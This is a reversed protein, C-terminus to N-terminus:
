SEQPAYETEAEITYPGWLSHEVNWGVANGDRDLITITVTYGDPCDFSAITQLVVNNNYDQSHFIIDTGSKSFSAWDDMSQLEDINVTWTGVGAGTRTFLATCYGVESYFLNITFALGSSTVTMSNKTRYIAGQKCATGSILTWNAVTSAHVDSGLVAFGYVTTGSLVSVSKSGSTATSSTSLYYNQLGIGNSTATITYTPKATANITGFDHAKTVYVSGVRYVNGNGVYSWSALPTYAATNVHAFAYVTTGAYFPASSPSTTGGTDNPNASLYVKTIGTGATVTVAYSALTANITGFSHGSATVTGSGVRYTLSDGSGVAVWTSPITISALLDRKLAVFGYVTSGYPFKTGSASGSAATSSNSLYVSSIGAGATITVAYGNGVVTPTWSYNNSITGSVSLSTQTEAYGSFHYYTAATASGALTDGYYVTETGTGDILPSQPNSLAANQYPSSERWIKISSVNANKTISCTYRKVYSATCTNEGPLATTTTITSNSTNFAYAADATWSITSVARKWGTSATTSCHTGTLKTVNVYDASYSVAAGAELMLTQHTTTGSSNFACNTNATVQYAQQKNYYKDADNVTCSCRTLSVSAPKVCFPEASYSLSSSSVTATTNTQTAGAAFSYNTAPTWTIKTGDLHWGSTKNATCNTSSITINYWTYVTGSTIAQGASSVTYSQTSTTSATNSYSYRATDTSAKATFTVSTGKLLYGSTYNSSATNTGKTITVNYYEYSANKTYATTGDAITVSATTSPSSASTNTFSYKLNTGTSATFTQSTGVRYWGNTPKTCNNGSFTCNMYTYVTDNTISQNPASVTKTCTTTTSSSTSFSYRKSTTASPATFTVVTGNLHYGSSKNATCNGSPTITVNLYYNSATKSYSTTGLAVTATSTASDVNTNSFSYKYGSGTTRTWTIVTGVALISGSTKDATCNTSSITCKIHTPNPAAITAGATVTRGNTTTTNSSSSGYYYNTKATWTIASGAAYYTNANKDVSANYTGTSISNLKVYQPSATYTNPSSSSITTESSTQTTGFAFSYYTNPTWTVKSPKTSSTYYGSSASCTCNTPSFTLYFYTPSASATTPVAASGGIAKTDQSSGSFSWGSNAQVTTSPKTGLAYWGAKSGSSYSCNTLSLTYYGHTPSKSYTGPGTAVQTTTTTGSSNFAYGSSATWKITPPASTSKMGTSVNASCGTGSQVTIYFNTPSAAISGPVAASKQITDGTTTGGFSWGSNATFTTTRSSTISYWGTAVNATCNTANVTYKGHTPSNSYTNPGSITVTKTTTGASDFAYNTNATYVINAGNKALGSWNSARTTGDVKITCNSGSVTIQCYTPSATVTGPVAASATTTDKLTSGGFSWNDNATFTTSKSSAVSYWGTSVNATCNTVNVTYKGHTATKSYATGPGTVTLTETTKGSSNFAYNTNATWTITTGLAVIGAWGPNRATSGVKITARTAGVTIQCYNPGASVSGPVSASKTTTDKLTSGGFSYSDNATFTTTKSSTVQYWGTSVNATCNTTSVTYKGYGATKTYTGAQVITDNFTTTGSSDFAYNTNATFIIPTNNLIWGSAINATCNTLSFTVNRWIYVTGSAIKQGASSVTVSKTYVTSDTSSFSCRNSATAETATFTVTTGNLLYGSSKNATCNTSATITVNYWLYSATKSYSATDTSITATESTDLTTNSFSYKSNTASLTTWTITAGIKRYGSTVNATCNTGNVTISKYDCSRSYSTTGLAVTHKTPNSATTGEAFSYGSSATYTIETGVALISGSTKSPTCRTGSITCKVYGPAKSYTGGSTISATTTDKLTSGGFSYNDNATWTIVTGSDYWTGSSRNATCYSSSITPKYQTKYTATITRNGTVTSLTSWSTFVKRSTGSTVTSADTRSPTSGYKYTETTTTWTDPYASLYKWTITYSRETATIGGASVTKSTTDSLVWNFDVLTPTGTYAYQATDSAKYATVRWREVLSGNAGPYYCVVTNSSSNNVTDGVYATRSTVATNVQKWVIGGGGLNITVAQKAANSLNSVYVLNNNETNTVKGLSGAIYYAYSSDATTYTWSSPIDYLSLTTLPVKAICFVTSGYEFTTGSSDGSTATASTSLFMSINGTTDNGNIYVKYKRKVATSASNSITRTSTIQEDSITPLLVVGGFDWEVTDPMVSATVTWRVAAKSPYKCTVTAGDISLYDGYYATLYDVTAGNGNIKWQTGPGDFYITIPRPTVAPISFNKTGTVTTSGICYRYVGNSSYVPDSLPVSSLYNELTTETIEAFYYVRTGYAYKYGSANGSTATSSTSTYVNDWGFGATINVAHTTKARAIGTVNVTKTELTNINWNFATIAVTGSYTWIDSNTFKSATVRWREVLSGNAGPYYCGVATSGINTIVDGVQARMSSVQNGNYTWSVYNGTFLIIATTQKVLCVGSSPKWLTGSKTKYFTNAM